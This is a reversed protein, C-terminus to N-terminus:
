TEKVEIIILSKNLEIRDEHHMNQPMWISVLSSKGPEVTIAMGVGLTYILYSGIGAGGSEDKKIANRVGQDYCRKMNEIMKQPVLTGYFDRCFIVLSEGDSEVVFNMEKINDTASKSFNTFLEDAILVLDDRVRRFKNSKLFDKFDTLLETKTTKGDFVREFRVRSDHDGDILSEAPDSLFGQLNERIRVVRNEDLGGSVVQIPGHDNALDVAEAPTIDSGVVIKDTLSGAQRSQQQHLYVIEAKKSM